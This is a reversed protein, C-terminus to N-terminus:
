RPLGRSMEISNFVGASARAVAQDSLDTGVLRFQVAGAEGILERLIIAVSYLEQGTSCAASWIRIPTRLGQRSRRDILEPILKHRLLDFPATDRFFLTEGTTIADILKRALSGTTDRRCKEVLDSLSQCLQAQALDSLRSEVLYEKGAELAIASVERIYGAVIGFEGPKLKM